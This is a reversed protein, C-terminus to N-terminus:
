RNGMTERLYTIHVDLQLEDTGVGGGKRKSKQGMQQIKRANSSGVIYGAWDLKEEVNTRVMAIPKEHRACLGRSAAPKLQSLVTM